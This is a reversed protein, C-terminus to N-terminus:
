NKLKSLQYSLKLGLITTTFNRNKKNKYKIIGKEFNGNIIFRRLQKGVTVAIGLDNGFEGDYKQNGGFLLNGLQNGVKDSHIGYFVGVSRTFFQNQQNLTTKKGISVITQLYAIDSSGYSTGQVFGGQSQLTTNTTFYGKFLYSIDLAIFNNKKIPKIFNYGMGWFPQIKRTNSSRTVINDIIVENSLSSLGLSPIITLGVIIKNKQAIVKNNIFLSIFFLVLLYYMKM